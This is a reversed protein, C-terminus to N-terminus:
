REPRGDPAYAKQAAAVDRQLDTVGQHVDRLRAALEGSRLNVFGTRHLLDQLCQAGAAHDAPVEFEADTAVGQLRSALTGLGNMARAAARLTELHQAIETSARALETLLATTTAPSM